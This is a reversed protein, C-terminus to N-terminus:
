IHYTQQQQMRFIYKSILYVKQDRYVRIKAPEGDVLLKVMKELDNINGTDHIVLYEENGIQEQRFGVAKLFEMAGKCPAVKEQL